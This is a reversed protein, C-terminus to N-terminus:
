GMKALPFPLTERITRGTLLMIVRDVGVGLGGTPPMAYELATLFDEDLEMAEPDGAAAMMSQETLRRRQEIPDTLESYATGLEMGFAVLDWRETVGSVSRHSRTLPSVSLPFDKYFTPAVTQGEVLREYMELVVEGANWDRQYPVGARDCLTFLEALETSASVETGLAESVAEHLTKVPWEGSIDVREQVGDAGIRVAVAEGHVAIAAQQILERCLRLMTDYDGHAEYAELMTFEPNHKYSVGENRFTRGLEFVRDMGGVALRKLYLEPAIRLYMDLNYANMHTTFPRANAGGHVQQLIPTEVELFGREALTTRFSHVIKSRAVLDARSAENTALDLYRQRVKAEPNVLGLWKNPMPHLAKGLMRWRHVVVGRVGARSDGIVGSVELLDGLDLYKQLRALDEASEREAVIQVDGTFDRLNAFLVGGHDRKLLVRGAISVESGTALGALQAITHSPPTAIPYPDIGEARMAEVKDIRQQTSWPVRRVSTEERETAVAERVPVMAAEVEAGVRQQDVTEVAGRRRGIFGEALGAAFSTRPLTSSDSYCLFRPRWEPHYKANSRYLSELQFWRSFFLLLKRWLRLVPGAGIRAGEEFAARFMAFNLSVQRVGFDGANEMLGAVVFENGGNPANPDRRMLDLSVGNTGWPAFSMMCVPQGDEGVAEVLLCDGDAPDGLRGSAMSFGREEGGVRWGEMLTRYGDWETADIDRHRRIRLSVGSKEARKVAARVPKLEPSTLRFSDPRLIAEDGLALASMGRAVYAAAGEESAGLVATTWGYERAHAQWAAIAADWNRRPGIPDGSALCTGVEVRYTIAAGGDPAFVASKDRRTAFYDLSDSHRQRLLLERIRIEEEPTLSSKLSQSRFLIYAVFAILLATLINMVSPELLGTDPGMYNEATVDTTDFVGGTSQHFAILWRDNEPVGNNTIQLLGWGILMNLGIGLVLTLVALGFAGRRVKARFVPYALILAIIALVPVVFPWVGGLSWGQETEPLANIDEMFLWLFLMAAINALVVLIWYALSLWWVLRKRSALARSAVILILGWGLSYNNLGITNLTLLMWDPVNEIPILGLVVDILGFVLVASALFSAIKERWRAPPNAIQHESDHLSPERRGASDQRGADLAEVGREGGSSKRLEASM